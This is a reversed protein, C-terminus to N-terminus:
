EVLRAQVGTITQLREIAVQAYAPDLEIGYGTRGTRDAAVCTTGSGLFPDLIIAGRKSSALICREVLAVPKMTPHEASRKPRPIEWVTDLTRDTTFWHAAGPRWGYHISQSAKVNFPGQRAGLHIPEHRYQYDSRGLVLQDKVWIITQRYVGLEKLVGVFVDAHQSPAACYLARGPTLRSIATTLSVHLLTRLDSQSIDDNLITGGQGAPEPKRRHRAVAEEPTLEHQYSVGYPPDTWIMGVQGDPGLLQTYAAADRADGCLIRHKGIAYMQGPQVWIDRPAPIDPVDDATTETAAIGQLFKDLEHDTYGIAEDWAGDDVLSKLWNGLADPDNAGLESMRNDTVVYARAETDSLDTYAALITPWERMGAPWEEDGPAVGQAQLDAAAKTEAEMAIRLQNGAVIYGTSRQVLVPRQQGFRRLSRRIAMIDGRRPNGPFPILDAFAVEAIDDARIGPATSM